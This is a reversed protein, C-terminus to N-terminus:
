RADRPRTVLRTVLTVVEDLPRTADVVEFREAGDALQLYEQRRRALSTLTGEGKRAHLVEPPADLFIVLDPRPYFRSLMMGHLRRSLTPAHGAMDAHHFDALYHRDFIVTHGRRRYYGALLQRYWEEALLNALRLAGRASRQHPAPPGGAPPPARPPPGRATRKIRRPLSAPPPASGPQERPGATDPPAGLRRKIAHALRTTPLARDISDKSVGMYLYRVSLGPDAELARAVTTKGAGDCGILAVSLASGNVHRLGNRHVSM